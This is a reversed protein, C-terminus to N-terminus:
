AAERHDTGTHTTEAEHDLTEEGWDPAALVRMGVPESKPSCAM